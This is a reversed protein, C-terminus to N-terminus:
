SDTPPATTTARAAPTRRTRARRRPAGADRGGPGAGAVQGAREAIRAEIVGTVLGAADVTKLAALGASVLPRRALTSSLTVLSGRRLRPRSSTGRLYHSLGRGYYRKKAFLEGLDVRGEDHWVQSRTRGLEWGARLVRDPLEFDEPGTLTEDFGGVADFAERRFVRAAEVGADGLYIEKELVRCRAWFGEGFSREPIVAAGIRPDAALLEAAEAAVGPELVMDSDVFVLVPGRGLRAGENRQASREPGHDVVRDARAAALSRTADTSRNDVVIVEVSVSRQRRISDLCAAITRASNRTPVVFSVTPVAAGSQPGHPTM